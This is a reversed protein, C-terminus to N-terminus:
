EHMRGSKADPTLKYFFNSMGAIEQTKIRILSEIHDIKKNDDFMSQLDYAMAELPSNRYGKALLGAAYTILFLEPKLEDWQVIHVMEHFWTSEKHHAEPALFFTDKYTIGSYPTQEFPGFFSLGMKSLPPLVVRDVFVVQSRALLDNSFYNDLRKFEFSLVSKAQARHREIYDEIWDTVQPLIHQFSNFLERADNM